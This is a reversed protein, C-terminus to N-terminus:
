YGWRIIVIGSGGVYKANSGWGANGGGGGGTNPTGNSGNKGDDSEGRGGGGSGGLGGSYDPQNTLQRNGAGGGGGSYITNNSEGFERTTTHQGVGVYISSTAGPATSGDNGDSGGNGGEGIYDIHVGTGGGSGGNGGGYANREANWGGEAVNGLCSSSGGRILEYRNGPACQGGAGVICDIKQGPTVSIGKVTKTYGGGGGGRPYSGIGLRVGGGGGGGVLFVDIKTVGAPVTFTGSATFVQKGKNIFPTGSAQAGSTTTNYSYVDNSLNYAFARFYYVTGNTLGTKEATNATGQYFTTGDSPSTPYGGTKYKIIVGKFKADSPNTWNLRLWGSTTSGVTVKLGSIQAPANLTSVGTTQAGSVLDNYVYSGSIVNYAFARFYYTVGNSLGSLQKNAGVGDYAVMGDTPSTPYGGTKYMIRVGKFNQDGSPNNWYLDILGATDHAGVTRLGTIQGPKTFHTLNSIGDVIQPFTPHTPISAGRENCLSAIDMQADDIIEALRESTDGAVAPAGIAVIIKDLSEGSGGGAANTRGTAVVAM